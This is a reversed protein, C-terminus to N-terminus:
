LWEALSNKFMRLVLLNNFAWLKKAKHVCVCSTAVFLNVRLEDLIFPYGM